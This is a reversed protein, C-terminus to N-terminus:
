GTENLLGVGLPAFLNRQFLGRLSNTEREVLIKKRGKGKIKGGKPRNQSRKTLHEDSFRPKSLHTIYERFISKEVEKSTGRVEEQKVGGKCPTTDRIFKAKV